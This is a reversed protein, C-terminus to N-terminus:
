PKNTEYYLHVVGTDLRNRIKFGSHTLVELMQRNDGLVDAELETIGGARAILALHELLITGIGHGQYEDLVAFAVEARHPDKDRLYRGVGIFRERGNETLTAALGVHDHFDLETLSKLDQASLDRKFGMFRFYISQQSLGRFHQHLREQDDAAIARIRISGDDRLEADVAYNRPDIRMVKDVM